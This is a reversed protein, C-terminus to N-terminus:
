VRLFAKGDRDEVEIVWIDPDYGAQRALYRDIEEQPVAKEFIEEFIRDGQDDVSPGVPPGMLWNHEDSIRISIYISGAEPAGKRVIVCPMAAMECRRRYAAIWIDAKVSM